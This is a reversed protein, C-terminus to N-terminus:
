QDIMVERANVPFLRERPACVDSPSKDFKWDVQVEAFHKSKRDLIPFSKDHCSLRQRARDFALTKFIRWKELSLSFVEEDLWQWAILIPELQGCDLKANM